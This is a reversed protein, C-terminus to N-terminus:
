KRPMQGDAPISTCSAGGSSAPKSSTCNYTFSSHQVTRVGWQVTRQMEVDQRYGREVMKRLEPTYYEGIRAKAHTAHSNNSDLQADSGFMAGTPTRWGTAGYEEWLGVQELMARAQEYVHDDIRGVFDFYPLTRDLGCILHQPRFHRDTRTGLGWPMNTANPMTLREVFAPFSVDLNGYDPLTNIMHALIGNKAKPSLRGDVVQVAVKDLYASLLREVPDRLFVASFYSPDLLASLITQHVEPLLGKQWVLHANWTVNAKRARPFHPYYHPETTNWLPDGTLRLFLRIFETVGNKAIGCFVFKHRRSILWVSSTETARYTDILSDTDPPRGGSAARVQDRAACLGGHPLFLLAVIASVM